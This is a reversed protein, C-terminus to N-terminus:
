WRCALPHRDRRRANQERLPVLDRRLGLVSSRVRFTETLTSGLPSSGKVGERCFHAPCSNSAVTPQRARNHCPTQGLQARSQSVIRAILMLGAAVPVWRSTHVEEAPETEAVKSVHQYIPASFVREVPIPSLPSRCAPKRARKTAIGHHHREAFGAQMLGASGPLAPAAPSTGAVTFVNLDGMVHDVTSIAPM